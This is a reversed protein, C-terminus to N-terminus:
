WCRWWGLSIVMRAGGGGSLARPMRGGRRAKRLGSGGTDADAGAAEGTRAIIDVKAVAVVTGVTVPAGVTVVAAGEALGVDEPNGPSGPSTSLFQDESMPMTVAMTPLTRM